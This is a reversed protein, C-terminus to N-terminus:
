SMNLCPCPCDPINRRNHRNHHSRPNERQHNFKGRTPEVQRRESQSRGPTLNRKAPDSRENFLGLVHHLRPAAFNYSNEAITVKTPHIINRFSFGEVSVKMGEKLENIFGIYRTLMPVLYVSDGSEVAVFGRELKLTGDVTVTERERQDVRERVRGTREQASVMGTFLVAILFSILIKKM